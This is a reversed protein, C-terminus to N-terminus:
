RTSAHTLAAARDMRAHGTPAGVAPSAENRGAVHLLAHNGTLWTKATILELSLVGARSGGHPNGSPVSVKEERPLALTLAGTRLEEIVVNHQEDLSPKLAKEHDANLPLM